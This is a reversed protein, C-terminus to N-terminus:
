GRHSLLNGANAPTRTHSQSYKQRRNRSNIATNTLIKVQLQPHKQRCIAYIKVPLLLCNQMSTVPLNTHTGSTSNSKFYENCERLNVRPQLCNTHLRRSTSAGYVRIFKGTKVFLSNKCIVCTFQTHPRKVLM